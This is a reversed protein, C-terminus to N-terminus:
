AIRHVSNRENRSGVYVHKGRIGLFAYDANGDCDFDAEASDSTSWAVKPYARGLARRAKELPMKAEAPPALLAFVFSLVAVFSRM